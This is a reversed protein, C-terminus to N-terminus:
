RTPSHVVDRADQGGDLLAVRLRGLLEQRQDVVFQPPQRRPLQGLLRGALRQLRGGQDVLGVEPQDIDLLGLLPVTAAMEKGGRGLGHSANERRTDRM